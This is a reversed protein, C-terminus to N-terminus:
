PRGLDGPYTMRIIVLREIKLQVGFRVIVGEYTEECVLDFDRRFKQPTDSPCNHDPGKRGDNWVAKMGRAIKDLLTDVSVGNVVAAQELAILVGPRSGKRLFVDFDYTM